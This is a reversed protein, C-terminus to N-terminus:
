RTKIETYKELLDLLLYDLSCLAIISFYSFLLDHKRNNIYKELKNQATITEKSMSVSFRM